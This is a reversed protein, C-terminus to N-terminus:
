SGSGAPILFTRQLTGSSQQIVLRVATPLTDPSQWADTWVYAHTQDDLSFFEVRFALADRCLASKRGPKERYIENLTREQRVVAHNDKDFFYSVEAIARDGGMTEPGTSFAAFTLKDEEVSFPISAFHFTNLFDASAKRTFLEMEEYPTESQLGRWLKVAASFNAYITIAVIPVLTTVVLLEILSFGRESRFRRNLRPSM